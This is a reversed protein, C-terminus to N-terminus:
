RCLLQWFGESWVGVESEELRGCVEEPVDRGLETGVRELGILCARGRARCRRVRERGLGCVREPVDRGLETDM